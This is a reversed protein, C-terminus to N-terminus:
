SASLRDYATQTYRLFLTPMTYGTLPQTVSKQLHPTNWTVQVVHIRIQM